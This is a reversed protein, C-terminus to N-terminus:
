KEHDCGSDGDDRRCPCLSGGISDISHRIEVDPGVRHGLTRFEDLFKAFRAAALGCIQFEGDQLLRATGIPEHDHFSPFVLSGELGM